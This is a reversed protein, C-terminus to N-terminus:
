RFAELRPGIITTFLTSICVKLPTILAGAVWISSLIEFPLGYISHYTGVPIFLFIRFLVDSELGIFASMSYQIWNNAWWIPKLYQIGIVLLLLMYALYVDWMGWFPLTQAVPTLFYTMLLVTFFGFLFPWRKQFLFGSMLTGLPAGITFLLEEIGRPSITHGIFVGILTSIFGTWPGLLIGTIPVILYVLGFWVGSSLQPIILADLVATLATFVAVKTVFRSKEQPMLISSVALVSYLPEPDDLM